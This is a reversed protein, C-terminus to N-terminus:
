TCKYDDDASPAALKMQDDPVSTAMARATLTVPIADAKTASAPPYTEPRKSLRSYFDHCGEGCHSDSAGHDKHEEPHKTCPKGAVLGAMVLVLPSLVTTPHM